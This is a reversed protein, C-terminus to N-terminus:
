THDLPLGKFSPPYIQDVSVERNVNQNTIQNAHKAKWDGKNSFYDSYSVDTLFYPWSTLDADGGQLYIFVQQLAVTM